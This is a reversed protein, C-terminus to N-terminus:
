SFKKRRRDIGSGLNGNNERYLKQSRRIDQINQFLRNDLKACLLVMDYAKKIDFWTIAVNETENQEQQPHM